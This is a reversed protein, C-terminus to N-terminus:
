RPRAIIHLTAALARVNPQAALARDLRRVTEANAHDDVIHPAMLSSVVKVARTQSPELGAETLLAYLGDEDFRRPFPDGAGWRGHPDTLMHEADHVPGQLARALVGAIRQATVVSVVGDPRVVRDLGAVAAIPDDVVELVGHCLVVDACAPGLLEAADAADGQVGRVRDDVGAESARSRLTALANPSPDVVTVSHGSQAAPVAATGSGGGVDVVDLERLVVGGEHGDRGERAGHLVALVADWIEDDPM